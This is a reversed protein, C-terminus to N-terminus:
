NPLTRRLMARRFVTCRSAARFAAGAVPPLFDHAFLLAGHFGASLGLAGARQGPTDDAGLHLLRDGHLNLPEDLMRRVALEDAARRLQQRVVLLALRAVPIQHLDSRAPRQRAVLAPPDHRHELLGRASSPGLSLGRSLCYVMIWSCVISLAASLLPARVRIHM